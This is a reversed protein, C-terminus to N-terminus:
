KEPVGSTLGDVVALCGEPIEKWMKRGYARVGVLFGNTMRHETLCIDCVLEANCVRDLIEAMYGHKLERGCRLCPWRVSGGGRVSYTFVGGSVLVDDGSVGVWERFREAM